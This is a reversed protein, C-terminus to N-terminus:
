EKIQKKVERVENIRQQTMAFKKQMAALVNARNREKIQQHM